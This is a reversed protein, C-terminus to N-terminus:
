NCNCVRCDGCVNKDHKKHLDCLTKGGRFSLTLQYFENLSEKKKSLMKKAAKKIREKEEKAFKIKEGRKDNKYQSVAAETIGLLSAVEKQSIKHNNILVKTLERRLAPILYWVEIEQPMSMSM